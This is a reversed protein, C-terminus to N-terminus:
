SDKSEFRQLFDKSWSSFTGELINARMLTMLHIYFTLNHQTAIRLGLVENTKFLHNLYALSYQESMESYGNSDIPSFDNQCKSNRINVKGDFTFLQGNRANRTPMVCDFMDVGRAVNQVLDAPTGVGMLYRPKDPPLIECTFQATDLMENKPEGVALGGIAYAQADLQMLENASQKRLNLDTGGQVIPMIVQHHGYIPDTNRFHTMSRKAWRTTQELAEVWTARDADGPPCIDLMMMFDSGIIRQIDVVKEPTLHHSSGDLHSQFTVGDDSIKRLGPLSFIQFGGSDTLIAGDWNMFGHLGGAAKLIDTGPRLYLHYTNSLLIRSMEKIEQSSQTKVAGHTGVPMFFPTELIGHDTHILGARASTDQDTKELQFLPNM